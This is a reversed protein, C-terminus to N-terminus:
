ATKLTPLVLFTFLQINKGGKKIQKKKKKKAKPLKNEKCGSKVHTQNREGIAKYYRSVFERLRKQTKAFNEQPNVHKEKCKAVPLITYM